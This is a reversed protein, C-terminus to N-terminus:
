GDPVARPSIVPRSIKYGAIAATARDVVDPATRPRTTKSTAIAALWALALVPVAIAARAHLAFARWAIVLLAAIAPGLDLQYRSSVSPSRLYFVFLPLAALVAWALLWRSDPRRDRAEKAPIALAGLM